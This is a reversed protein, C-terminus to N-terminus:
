RKFCQILVRAISISRLSCADGLFDAAIGNSIAPLQFVCVSLPAEPFAPHQRVGAWAM